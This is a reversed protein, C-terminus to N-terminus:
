NLTTVESNSFCSRVAIVKITKGTGIKVKASSKNIKTGNTISPTTGDTTYYLYCDPTTTKLTYYGNGNDTITPTNVTPIKLVLRCVNSWRGDYYSRAYVTGYYKEFLVTEGPKVCTDKTTLMSTNATTYYISAGETECNFTVNRGGFTGKVAFSVPKVVNNDVLSLRSMPSQVGDKVVIAKLIGSFGDIATLRRTSTMTNADPTGDANFGPTSGNTTYYVVSGTVNNVIMAAGNDVTQLVPANVVVNPDAVKMTVTLNHTTMYDAMNTRVVFTYTGAAKPTGELVVEGDKWSVNIGAPAKSTDVISLTTPKQGRNWVTLKQSFSKNVEANYSATTNETGNIKYTYISVKHYDYTNDARQAKFEVVTPEIQFTKPSGILYIGEMGVGYNMGEPLSGSSITVSKLENDLDDVGKLYYRKTSGGNLDVQVNESTHVNDSEAVRKFKVRIHVAKEPMVFSYYGIGDQTVKIYYDDTEVSDVMYGDKPTVDISVKEGAYAKKRTYDTAVHYSVDGNETGTDMVVNYQTAPEWQAYLVTDKIVGVTEGLLEGGTKQLSWGKFTHYPPATFTSEPIKVEGIQNLLSAMTNSGGNANFSLTYTDAVVELPIYVNGFKGSHGPEVWFRFDGYGLSKGNLYVNPIYSDTFYYGNKSEM